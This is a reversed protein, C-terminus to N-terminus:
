GFFESYREILEGIRSETILGKGIAVKLYKGNFAEFVDESVPFIESFEEYTYLGYEAIDAAYSEEDITLTDPDVDFINFLGDIGGPMSLMGNVYYCLHGYTVPSYAETIETSIDVDTLVVETMSDGSEKLFSHGIYDEANEDLYVYENLDADWFGHESIVEVATDDSFTLTIVEYHGTLESDVFMIPASGFTGTEMDWVLLMEEGTLDEVAKQTGDALTILTGPALCSDDQVFEAIVFFGEVTAYSGTPLHDNPQLTITETTGLVTYGSSNNYYKRWEVFNYGDRDAATITLPSGDYYMTYTTLNDINGDTQVYVKWSRATWHAYLTTDSGLDFTRVSHGYEDYYQVGGTRATYYGAFTYGTRTPTSVSPMNDNLTVDISSTGGSGGNRDFTIMYEISNIADVIGEVNLRKATHSSSGTVNFISVTFDDAYELIIDKIQSAELNPNISLMLAAVGSVHPAAMSTGDMYHYGNAYHESGDSECNGAECLATPYTSLISMGPAYIDVSNQGYNSFVARYGASTLAGVSIVNPLDFDDIDAFQDTNQASNGASWVFLGPYNSIAPLMSTRGGFGGVSHNLISIRKDDDEWLSTAYNIAEIRDTDYHLASTNITQLPVLKVNPSVGSIGMSNNGVAAIIGAVHTGHGDLVDNTTTNNNYFDYGTLVNANLDSHSAIGSDIVGVRIENSGRTTDWVEEANIGYTGNLGWQENYYTDNPIYSEEEWIWNPSAAEIKQLSEASTIADIVAEKSGNTLKAYLIQKFPNKAYYEALRPATQANLSGDDNVYKLPLASIDEVTKVGVDFLKSMISPDIGKFRSYEPKITIIISGAEYNDNNIVIESESEPELASTHGVKINATYFLYTMVLLFLMIFLCIFIASKFILKKM